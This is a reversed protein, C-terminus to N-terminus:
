PEGGGQPHAESARALAQRAQIALPSHFYDRALTQQYRRALAALTTREVRDTPAQLIQEVDGLLAQYEIDVQEIFQQILAEDQGDLSLRAHWVLAGGQLEHIDSALWQFQEITAPTAPLVWIADHVLLAGLRKLKRWIAVRRASPESAVQYHLLVWQRM